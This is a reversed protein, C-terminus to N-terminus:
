ICNLICRKTIVIWVKWENEHTKIWFYADLDYEMTQVCLLFGYVGKLTKMWSFPIFYMFIRLRDMSIAVCNQISTSTRFAHLDVAFILETSTKCEAFRDSRTKTFFLSFLRFNSPATRFKSSKKVMKWVNEVIKQYNKSLKKHYVM